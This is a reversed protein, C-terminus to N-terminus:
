RVGGTNPSRSRHGSAAPVEAPLAYVVAGGAQVVATGLTRTWAVFRSRGAVGSWPEVPYDPALRQLEPVQVLVHTFGADRLARTTGEPNPERDLIAALPSPDHQSPAEFPRPCGLGRPEAVLLVRAADPLRACAAFAAAPDNVSLRALVAPTDALLATGGLVQWVNWSSVLGPVLVVGIALTAIAAGVRRRGSAASALLVMIVPALFRGLAGTLSWALAGAAAIALAGGIRARRMAVWAGIAGLALAGLLPTQGALAGLVRRALDAAGAAQQLHSSADRYLTEIGPRDWGIPAFPRGLLVLNALWWPSAGAVVGAIARVIARPDRHRFAVTAIVIAAWPVGQLRSAVAIGALVGAGASASRPGTLALAVAGVIGALTWAEAIPFAAVLPATALYPIAVAVGTAAARSGGLRRALGGAAAAAAVTVALHVVAPAREIGAALPVAYLLRALPPFASFVTEPHPRLGGELWGLWPLGLHYVRADYFFPAGLAVLLLPASTAAPVWVTRADRVAERWAGSLAALIVVTALAAATWAGLLGLVLIALSLALSGLAVDATARLTAPVPFRAIRRVRAGTATAIASFALGAGLGALIEIWPVNM